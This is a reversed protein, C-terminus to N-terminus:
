YGTCIRLQAFIPQLPDIKSLKFRAPIAIGMKFEFKFEHITQKNLNLIIQQKYGGIM